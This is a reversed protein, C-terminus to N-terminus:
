EASAAVAAPAIGNAMSSAPEGSITAFVLATGGAFGLAFLRTFDSKILKKFMDIVTDRQLARGTQWSAAKPSTFM